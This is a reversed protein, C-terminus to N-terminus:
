PTDAVANGTRPLAIGRSPAGRPFGLQDLLTSFLDEVPAAHSRLLEEILASRPTVPVGAAAAWVVAGAADAPIDAALEARKDWVAEHFEPTDLWLLQDELDEPEEVLLGAAIGPNLWAQWVQGATDMGSVLALSSDAVEAVCAPAGSWEVLAPLDAADRIDPDTQLTQRGGPRSEWSRVTAGLDEDLGDFV